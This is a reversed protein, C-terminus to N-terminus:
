LLFSPAADLFHSCLKVTAQSALELDEEYIYEWETEGGMGLWRLFNINSPYLVCNQTPSYITHGYRLQSYGGVDFITNIVWQNIETKYSWTSGQDFNVKNFLSKLDNKLIKKLQRKISKNLYKGDQIMKKLIREEINITIPSVSINHSYSNRWTIDQDNLADGALELIERGFLGKVLSKVLKLQDDEQLSKIFALARLATPGKIAELFYFNSELERLTDQKAWLYFNLQLDMNRCQEM